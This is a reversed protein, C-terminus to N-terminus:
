IGGSQMLRDERVRRRARGSLAIQAWDPFAPLMRNLVWAFGIFCAISGFYFLLYGPSMLDMPTLLILEGLVQSVISHSLFTLFLLSRIPSLSKGAVRATLLQAFCMMFFVLSGRATLNPIEEALVTHLIQMRDTVQSLILLVIGAPLALRPASFESLSMRSVSLYAGAIVFLLISPRLVLPETVRFLALVLVILLVILGFRRIVPALLYCLVVSVFFDRLFAIPVNAPRDTLAFVTNLASLVSDVELSKLAGALGGGTALVMAVVALVKIASWTVMPLYVTKLRKQVFTGFRAQLGGQYLIYGAGFSLAAVSARGLYDVYFLWFWHFSGEYMFSQARVGPYVHVGIMFFVCLTRVLDIQVSETRTLESAGPPTTGDWVQQSM